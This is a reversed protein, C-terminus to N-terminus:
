KQKKWYIIIEGNGERVGQENIVNSNSGNTYSSGGGAGGAGSGGGGFYGGGGGGMAGNSCKGYNDIGDGGIGAVGAKSLYVRAGAGGESQTGGKAMDYATTDYSGDGGVLGGGAGTKGGYGIGGGGGAVLVRASLSDSGIRIDSAGGGGTGKGCGAGGGNYGGETSQPQSGVFILLESGPTVKLDSQVRGGKGGFESGGQAGYADIHISSINQPVMWKQVEPKTSFVISDNQSKNKQASLETQIFLLFFCCSIISFIGQSFKSKM